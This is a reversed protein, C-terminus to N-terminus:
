VKRLRRGRVASEAWAALRTRDIKSNHRRDVPLEPLEFVAVVSDGVASRVADVRDLAALRPSSLPAVPEVLAVIQQTGRPGVGVVAAAAVDRISEIAQELAVPARPGADTTIVHGLRGGVWLRGDGDLRGVDGTAHWGRPRSAVFETHWLRDYGARAHDARVVIEGLVGPEAILEGVPRGLRDLRRLRVDVRPAPFGVCVGDGDSVEELETLSISSVPLCETMGYPTHATANPFLEAGARLLERRVPAGASLLLRIRAFAARHDDTLGGATRVVNALAGPSVFVLTAEVALAADGLARATLTRPQTVDMDPVVSSIGAGAGYLAFPAFASVLRDESTIGYLETLVLRQADIQGHTYVVGKSPGTAGSTFVVAAVDSTHPTEPTVDHTHRRRSADDDAVRLLRRAAPHLATTCIPRGPWRLARAAVLAGPSGVLHTPAAAKVAASMGAAGLGSDILVVVAGIRWCAYLAVTLEIGPPIMLAVRDGSRVGARALGAATRDVRAAFESFTVSVPGESRLEVVAIRDGKDGHTDILTSPRNAPESPDAPDGLTGLWDVIAGAADVDESVFHGAKPYRHVVAHPLRRELDHLYVDSFVLDASGWLLLVPVSQLAGLGAAIERLAGATPHDPEVPIDTVFEAIASRRSASRYPALFGRRVGASV